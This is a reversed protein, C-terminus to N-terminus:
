LSKELSGNSKGFVINIERIASKISDAAHVANRCVNTGYKRRLTSPAAQSPDTEGVVTRLYQVADERELLLAVVPGSTMFEILGAFFPKNRHISYFSEAFEKSMKFMRIDLITFNNEELASIIKGIKRASVADPKILAITRTYPM